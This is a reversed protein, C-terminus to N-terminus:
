DHNMRGVLQPLFVETVMIKAKHLRFVSRRAWVYAPKISAETGAHNIDVYHSLAHQYLDHQAHLKQYRLASRKVQPNAFLAEGLPKNGLQRLGLWPGRLSSFPLVSHAFVLPKKHGMLLVNRVLVTQRFVLSLGPMEDLFARGHSVSLPQVSFDDFGQKLRATLSGKDSLAPRYPGSLLPKKLWRARKNQM